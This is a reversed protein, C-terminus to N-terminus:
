PSLARQIRAAAVWCNEISRGSSCLRLRECRHAATFSHSISRKQPKIDILFRATLSSSTCIEHIVNERGRARLTKLSISSTCLLLSLHRSLFSSISPRLLNLRCRLASTTPEPTSGQRRREYETPQEREKIPASVKANGWPYVSFSIQRGCCSLFIIARWRSALEDAAFSADGAVLLLRARPLFRLMM